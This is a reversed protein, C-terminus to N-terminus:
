GADDRVWKAIVRRGAEDIIEVRGHEALLRIGDAYASLAMSDLDGDRELYCAQQIVDALTDLLEAVQAQLDVLIDRDSM